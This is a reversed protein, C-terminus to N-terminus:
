GAMLQPWLAVLLTLGFLSIVGAGTLAVARRAVDLRPSGGGFRLALHRLGMSAFSVGAVTLAVGFAMAFTALIGVGFIGNALTFLLVILAGTCPRLGVALAAMWQRRPMVGDQHDHDHHHHHHHGHEHHEHAHHDHHHDAGGHCCAHNRIVGWAIYAGMAAILAYSAAELWLAQRMIERAGLDILSGIVAVLAIASLAQVLAVAGSLAFGHLIRARQTLFWASVVFKGHGPGAAHFVGYLFSLTVIAVVPAWSEAAKVQAVQRRLEVHLGRQVEMIKAALPQLPGPLVLAEAEPSPTAGGRGFYNASAEPSLVLGLGLLLALMSLFRTLNPFTVTM